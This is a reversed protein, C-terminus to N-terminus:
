LMYGFLLYAQTLLSGFIAAYNKIMERKGRM